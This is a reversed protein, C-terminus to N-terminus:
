VRVPPARRREAGGILGCDHVAATAARYIQFM